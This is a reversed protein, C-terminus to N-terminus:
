EAPLLDMLSPGAKRGAEPVMEAYGKLWSEFVDIGSRLVDPQMVNVNLLRQFHEIMRISGGGRAGGHVMGMGSMMLGLNVRLNAFMPGAFEESAGGTPGALPDFMRGGYAWSMFQNWRGFLPGLQGAEALSDLASHIDPFHKLVVKARASLDRIQESLFAPTIEKEALQKMVARHLVKNGRLESFIKPDGIVSETWHDIEFQEPQPNNLNYSERTVQTRYNEISKHMRKDLDTATGAQLKMDLAVFAKDLSGSMSQKHAYWDSPGKGENESKSLWDFMAMEEVTFDQVAEGVPIDYLGTKADQQYTRSVGDPDVKTVTEKTAGPEVEVRRREEALANQAAATAKSQAIKAQSERDVRARDEQKERNAAFENLAEQRGRWVPTGALKMMAEIDGSKQTTAIKELEKAVGGKSALEKALEPNQLIAMTLAKAEAQKKQSREQSLKATFRGLGQMASQIIAGTKAKKDRFSTPLPAAQVGPAASPPASIAAPQPVMGRIDSVPVPPPGQAMQPPQGGVREPVSELGGAAPTLEAGSQGKLARAAGGSAQEVQDLVQKLKAQIGSAAQGNTPQEPM